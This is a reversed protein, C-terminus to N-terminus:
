EESGGKRAAARELVTRRQNLAPNESAAIKLADHYALKPDAKMKEKVANDFQTNIQQLENAGKEAGTGAVGRESLDVSKMDKTLERFNEIDTLAIRTWRDRQAPTIRGASVATQVESLAVGQLNIARLVSGAIFADDDLAAVDIVGTTADRKLDSLRIVKPQQHTHESANLKKIDEADCQPCLMQTRPHESCMVSEKAMNPKEVGKDTSEADSLRIAPLKDLVPTNTLAFSTLTAGQQEGTSKDRSGWNIVPSGYKYEGAAIMKRAAENFTAEAWAIGNADPQPDIGKIWGAAPIPGGMAVGPDDSAHEYDIVVEGNGRKTFNDAMRAIDNRTISFKQKGKYFTGVMAVPIRTTKDADSLVVASLDIMLRM